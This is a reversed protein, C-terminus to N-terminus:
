PMKEAVAPFKRQDDRMERLVQTQGETAHILVAQQANTTEQSKVIAASSESIKNLSGKVEERLFVEGQKKDSMFSAFQTSAWVAIAAIATGVGGLIWKLLTTQQDMKADNTAGNSM